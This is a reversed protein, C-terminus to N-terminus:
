KLNNILSLAPKGKEWYYLFLDKCWKHFKPDSGGFGTYDIRGSQNPLCLAAFKETMVIVVDVKPLIKMQIGLASLPILPKSSSLRFVDEPLIIRYEFTSKAKGGVIPAASTLIQDSLIWIYEQAERFMKETEDINRFTDTGLGSEALDGIRDIFEYPIRSVDYEM